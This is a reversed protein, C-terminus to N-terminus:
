LGRYELFIIVARSFASKLFQFLKGQGLFQCRALSSVEKIVKM